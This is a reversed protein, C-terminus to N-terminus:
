RRKASKIVVGVIKPGCNSAVSAGVECIYEPPYGLKKTLISALEEPPEDLSGRMIIYPTRPIMTKIAFDVLRPIINKDGRVKDIVHSVGDTIRIVPRLGLLEGAFAAAASIRGSRKTYELTYASFLVEASSFWDELYSLIEDTQAGRQVKAAAQMVPYGYVGTYNLSDVIHVTMRDKNDDEAYFEDRALLANNYTGSGTSSITVHIVDTYGEDRLKCYTEHFEYATIQATKPFERSSELMSYFQRSDFDKREMYSKGDVTVCFSLIMIGLEEDKGFPIDCASDTLIKIRQM